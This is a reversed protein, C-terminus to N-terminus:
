ARLLAVTLAIVAVSAPVLHALLPLRVLVKRATSLPRGRVLRWNALAVVFAVAQWGLLVEVRNFGRTFGSGTKETTVFVLISSTFLICWVLFLLANLRNNASNM